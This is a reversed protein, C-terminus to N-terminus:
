LIYILTNIFPNLAFFRHNVSATWFKFKLALLEIRLILSRLQDKRDYPNGVLSDSQKLMLLSCPFTSFLGNWISVWDNKCKLVESQNIAIRKSSNKTASNRNLRFRRASFAKLIGQCIKSNTGFIQFDINKFKSHHVHSLNVEFTGPSSLHSVTVSCGKSWSSSRSLIRWFFWWSFQLFLEWSSM